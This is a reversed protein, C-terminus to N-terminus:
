REHGAGSAEVDRYKLAATVEADSMSALKQVWDKLVAEQQSGPKVREGGSHAVRRTPKNLLLSQGPNKRDVLVVLYRGFADVRDPAADADPFQLHTTSAVGETNHCGACGAAQLLPYVRDRFEGGQAM